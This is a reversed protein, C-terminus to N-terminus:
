IHFCLLIRLANEFSNVQINPLKRFSSSLTETYELLNQEYDM